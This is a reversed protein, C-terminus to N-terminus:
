KPNPEADYWEKAKFLQLQNKQGPALAMGVSLKGFRAYLKGAM